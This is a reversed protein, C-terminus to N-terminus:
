ILYYCCILVMIGSFHQRFYLKQEIVLGMIYIVGGGGFFFFVLGIFNTFLVHLYTFGFCLVCILLLLAVNVVNKYFIM